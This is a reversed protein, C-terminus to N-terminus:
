FNLIELHHCLMANFGTSPRRLVPSQTASSRPGLFGAQSRHTLEWARNARNGGSGQVSGELVVTPDGVPAPIRGQLCSSLTTIEGNGVARELGAPGLVGLQQGACCGHESLM